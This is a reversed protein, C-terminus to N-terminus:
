DIIITKSDFSAAMFYGLIGGTFNSAPNFPTSSNMPSFLVDNVLNFYNYVKRDIAYFEVKVTDGRYFDLMYDSYLVTDSQIFRDSYTSYYDNLMEGNRYYRFLYYNEHYRDDVILSKITYITKETYHPIELEEYILKLLTPHHHLSSQAQYENNSVTITITYIHGPLGTIVDGRYNGEGTYELVESREESDSITIIANEEVTAGTTDFYNSTYTLRVNCVSNYLISGEAVLRPSSDNLNIDIVEECSIAVFSTIFIIFFAKKM